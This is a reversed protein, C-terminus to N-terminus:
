YIIQNLLQLVDEKIKKLNKLQNDMIQIAELTDEFIYTCKKFLIDIM